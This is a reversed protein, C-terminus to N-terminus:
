GTRDAACLDWGIRGRLLRNGLFVYRYSGAFAVAAGHGQAFTHMSIRTNHTNHVHSHMDACRQMRTYTGAYAYAHTYTHIHKHIHTQVGKRARTIGAYAYAHTCTHIHIHTRRCVTAHMHIHRCIHIRTYTHTHTHTHTHRCVTAHVSLHRCIRIRTHM